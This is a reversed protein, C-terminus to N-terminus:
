KSAWKSIWKAGGGGEAKRWAVCVGTMVQHVRGSLRALMQQAEAADVPKGLCEGGLVVTTDAGLVVADAPATALVALAKEQALRKVYEEPPEGARVREDVDAPCVEFTYGANRLLEARRPSQSALILM